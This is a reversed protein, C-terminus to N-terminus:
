ALPRFTISQLGHNKLPLLWVPNELIHTLWIVSVLHIPRLQSWVCGAMNLMIPCDQERHVEIWVWSTAPYMGM